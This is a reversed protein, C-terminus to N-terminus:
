RGIAFSYEIEHVLDQHKELCAHVTKQVHPLGPMSAKLSPLDQAVSDLADVCGGARQLCNYLEVIIEDKDM